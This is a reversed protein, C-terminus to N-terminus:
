RRKMLNKFFSVKKNNKEEVVDQRISECEVEILPGNCDGCIQEGQVYTTYWQKGCKTCQLKIM